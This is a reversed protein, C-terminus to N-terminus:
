LGSVVGENPTQMLAEAMWNMYTSNATDEAATDRSLAFEKAVQQQNTGGSRATPTSVVPNKREVKNLTELFADREDDTADRGLYQNLSNNVLVQADDPNTLNVVSSFGSAGGAGPPKQVNLAISSDLIDYVSAPTGMVKGLNAAYTNLTSWKSFADSDNSIKHGAARATDIFKIKDPQPLKWWSNVASFLPITNTGTTSAYGPGMTVFGDNGIQSPDYPGTVAGAALFSQAAQAEANNQPRNATGGNFQQTGPNPAGFSM